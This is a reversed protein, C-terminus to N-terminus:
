VGERRPAAAAAEGHGGASGERIIKELLQIQERLGLAQEAAASNGYGGAGRGHATARPAPAEPPVGPGPGRRGSSPRRWTSVTRDAVSATM